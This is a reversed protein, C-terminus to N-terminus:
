ADDGAPPSPENANLAALQRRADAETAHCGMVRGDDDKVVAWGKEEPCRHHEEVIHYPM